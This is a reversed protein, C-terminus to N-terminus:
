KAPMDDSTDDPIDRLFQVHARKTVIFIMTQQDFRSVAATLYGARVCSLVSAERLEIVRGSERHRLSYRWRGDYARIRRLSYGNYVRDILEPMSMSHGLPRKTVVRGM